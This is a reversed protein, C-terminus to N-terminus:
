SFREPTKKRTAKKKPGPKKKKPAEDGDDTLELESDQHGKEGHTEELQPARPRGLHRLRLTLGLRQAASAVFM